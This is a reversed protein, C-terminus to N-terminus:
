LPSGLDELLYGNGEHFIRAHKGAVSRPTLLVDNGPDRGFSIADLNFRYSKDHELGPVASTRQLIIENGARRQLLPAIADHIITQWAQAPRFVKNFWNWLEVDARSFSQLGTLPSVAPQVAVAAKM